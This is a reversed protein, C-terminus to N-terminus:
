LGLTNQVLERFSSAMVSEVKIRDNCLIEEHDILVIQYDRRGKRVKTNFCIPDYGVGAAKAFPILGAPLLAAVLHRDYSISRLLGALGAEPPNSLLDFGPLMVQGWRWRLIMKEYLRPFRAPLHAYITELDMLNPNKVREAPPDFTAVFQEILSDENSAM